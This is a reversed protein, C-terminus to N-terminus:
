AATFEALSEMPTMSHKGYNTFDSINVRPNRRAAFRLQSITQYFSMRTIAADTLGVKAARRAIKRLKNQTTYKMKDPKDPQESPTTGQTPALSPGGKFARM